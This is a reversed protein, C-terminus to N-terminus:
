LKVHMCPSCCSRMHIFKCCVPMGLQVLYYVQHNFISLAHIFRITKLRLGEGSCVRCRQKASM